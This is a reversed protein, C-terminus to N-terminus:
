VGDRKLYLTFFFDSGAGIESEVTLEGGLAGALYRAISLGLGLGGYARTASGDGQVFPEFIKERREPAIGIGTDRVLFRVAAHDKRAPMESPEARVDVRGSSTFKIANEALNGLIRALMGDDGLFIEELSAHCEVNLDLGKARCAPSFKRDISELLSPLFFESEAHKVQQAELRALDLLNNVIDLLNRANEQVSSLYDAQEESPDTEALLDAMGIIGNLPTRLEHSMNSMFQSKMRSAQEAQNRAQVIEAESRKRESIDHAMAMVVHQGFYDAPYLNIESQFEARGRGRSWFELRRAGGDFVAAVCDSLLTASELGPAVINDISKGIFSKQAIGYIRQVGHNTDIVKGQQSLFFIADPVSDFLARFSKVSAHFVKAQRSRETIDRFLVLCGLLQEEARIAHVDVEVSVPADGARELSEHWSHIVGVDAQRMRTLCDAFSPLDGRAAWHILADIPKGLLPEAADRNLLRLGARNIHRCRGEADLGIAATSIAELLQQQIPDFLGSM